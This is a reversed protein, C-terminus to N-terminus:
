GDSRTALRWKWALFPWLAVVGPFIIVRFGGSGQRASSDLRGAGRLLFPVAFLLGVGAYVGVLIVVVTSITELM